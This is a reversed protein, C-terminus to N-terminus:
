MRPSRLGAGGTADGPEYVDKRLRRETLPPRLFEEAARIAADADPAIRVVGPKPGLGASRVLRRPQRQLGLLIALCRRRELAELASELAVLGTSDIHPVNELRLIVVHARDGIVGLTAMAKEAAGFFLPGEIDYVVVGPPLARPLAPHRGVALKTKTLEAMRRMFLLASFVVGAAVAIVMDFAVTLVFCAALVAVDSRPAIRVIRVVHRLDAMNWAVVLLLAALASMPLFGILPALLLVVGLVTVAHVMGAVPSRAGFRLNTATRAIAGTAPIGGFFPVVLNGVGLALLEADPDHKTRAMGDAVVACLLSEIAGLVAIAFASPLLEQILGFSIGQWPIMPLPPVQPIGAVMRGGIMSHFESAVTDIHIAPFVLAIFYGALGALPLAVLPAPVRRTLKPMAVLVALTGVGIAVEELSVGGRAAWMSGVREFFHDPSGLPHLGLLDKLQLVAIVVAIGATFGATVPHPIFEILRGLRLFGMLLLIVGAMMGAVLLGGIGFKAVVPALIVVFAATPGTVQVRSGGLLAVIFGGVIATYLGTQPPAGVAIALAMSLPLAVIGVVIGAQIDAKLDARGYGERISARLAAAPLERLKFPEHPDKLRRPM